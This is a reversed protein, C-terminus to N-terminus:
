RERFLGSLEPRFGEDGWHRIGDRISQPRYHRTLVQLATRVMLKASRVPWQREREIQELGKEFCCFDLAVDALEPGLAILANTVRKRADMAMESPETDARMGATRTEMRPALSATIHPQMLALTFDRALTEGADFAERPLFLGGDRNKLRALLSLPTKEGQRRRANDSLVIKEVM